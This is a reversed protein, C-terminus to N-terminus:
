RYVDRRHAIKMVTVVSQGDNIKYVIRYDGQRLRYKAAGSLKEYGFPRGNESLTRIRAILRDRDPADLGDLETEAARSIDVRYSAM